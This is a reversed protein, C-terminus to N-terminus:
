AASAKSPWQRGKWKSESSGYGTVYGARHITMFAALIGEKTIKQGDRTMEAFVRDFLARRRRYMVNRRGKRGGESKARTVCARKGCTKSAGGRVPVVCPSGCFPCLLVTPTM